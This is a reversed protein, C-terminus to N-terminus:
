VTAVRNHMKNKSLGGKWRPASAFIFGAIEMSRPQSSGVPETVRGSPVEESGSSWGKSRSIEKHIKKSGPHTGTLFAQKSFYVFVLLWQSNTQKNGVDTISHNCSDDFDQKLTGLSLLNSQLAAPAPIGSGFLPHLMSLSVLEPSTLVWTCIFLCGTDCRQAFCPMMMDSRKQKPPTKKGGTLYWDRPSRADRTDERARAERHTQMFYAQQSRSPESSHLFWSVRSANSGAGCFTGAHGQWRHAATALGQMVGCTTWWEEDSKILLTDHSILAM